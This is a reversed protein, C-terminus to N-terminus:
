RRWSRARSPGAMASPRPTPARGCGRRNPAVVLLRGGPALVRWCEELMEEASESAELAHVLMVRDVTADDLPLLLPDVLASASLDGAPWNVVGQRAPM